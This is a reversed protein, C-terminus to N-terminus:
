RDQDERATSGELPLSAFSAVVDALGESVIEFIERGKSASAHSPDGVVGTGGSLAAMSRYLSGRPARLMDGDAWDISSAYSRGDPVNDRDVLDPALHLMLSTEFECAHGVGGFGSDNLAALQEGVIQWWTMMAVNVGPHTVGFGEVFVRGLALNGGHSNFVLVRRFGHAVVSGIYDHLYALLTEHRVSLTGPFSMHHLSQCVAVGPLILVREGLRRDLEALFGEGIRADTSLPLHPGHQEVAAINFVVPTDRDMADLRPMTLDAWKM